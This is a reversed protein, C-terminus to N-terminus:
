HLTYLLVNIPTLKIPDFEETMFMMRLVEPVGSAAALHLAPINGDYMKPGTLGQNSRKSSDYIKEIQMYNLGLQTM